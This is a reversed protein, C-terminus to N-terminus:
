RNYPRFRLPNSKIASTPFKLGSGQRRANKLTRAYETLEDDQNNEDFIVNGIIDITKKNTADKIVKPAVGADHAEKWRNACLCWRDGSELMSLDNGMSKTFELFKDDVESCVTHVGKDSKGTKCFGDRYYGTIPDKGCIKLPEDLINMDPTEMMERIRQINEQLNM